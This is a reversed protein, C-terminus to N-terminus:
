KKGGFSAFLAILQEKFVFTLVTMPGLRTFAPWFGKFFTSPKEYRIINAICKIASTSEGKSANMVRTKVVDVPQTVATAVFGAVFSCVFHLGPGDAMLNNSLALQKAQEYTAVQGTTMLAARVVNPGVGTWLAAIGEAVGCL